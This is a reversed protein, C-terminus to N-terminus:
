EFMDDNAATIAQGKVETVLRTVRAAGRCLDYAVSRPAEVFNVM